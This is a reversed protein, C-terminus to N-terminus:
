SLEPLEVDEICFLEIAELKGKLLIKGCSESKYVVPLILKNMLASSVLVYKGLKETQGLIRSTTNM